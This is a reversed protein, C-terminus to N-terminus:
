LALKKLLAYKIVQMQDFSKRMANFRLSGPLTFAQSTTEDIPHTRQSDNMGNGLRFNIEGALTLSLNSFQLSSILFIPM